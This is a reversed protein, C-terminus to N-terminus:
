ARACCWVDIQRAGANKLSLCVEAITHGTTVVDDIVALHLGAVKGSIKFASKVNAARKVASLGSQAATSRIRELSFRDLQIPYSRAIPKAIELSQNFGRERLRLPHLPVPIIREPLPQNVYWNRRIKEGILISFTRAITLDHRFKLAKILQPIPYEYPFLAYLRNFPPPTHLCTGCTLEMHSDLFTLKQACIRCSQALIPLKQTCAVCFPYARQTPLQCLLCSSM